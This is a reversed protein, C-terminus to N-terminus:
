KIRAEGDEHIHRGTLKVFADELNAVEMRVDLADIGARALSLIIVNVLEGSGVVEIRKAHHELTKIEPLKTLLSDEFPKSPIFSIHKGGAVREALARPSDLDIIRGNDIFAVRDCLREAEEMFHTVLIITTGQDRVHEILEWCNRRAQPDLGTTMEDLLAVKPSGILALAVSLRQKQGGSLTKYYANLKEDLGLGNALEKGDAPKEYFSQYLDLIEGVKLKDQIASTQLQVGVIAHLAQNDVAPNLGMIEITGSDPQRLGSLCEVTTTKGAGNPGLIGFLEGQKVSFSIDNVAKVKDYTKVLHSVTIADNNKNDNAMLKLKANVRKEISV